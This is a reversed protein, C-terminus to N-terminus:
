EPYCNRQLIEVQIGFVRSVIRICNFKYLHVYLLNFALINFILFNFGSTLSPAGPPAKNGTRHFAYVAKTSSLSSLLCLHNLDIVDVLDVYM